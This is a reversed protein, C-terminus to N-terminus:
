VEPHSDDTEPQKARKHSQLFAVLQKRRWILVAIAGLLLVAGAVLLTNRLAHGGEPSFIIHPEYGDDEPINKTARERFFLQYLWEITEDTTMEAFQDGIGASFQQFTAPMDDGEMMGSLLDANDPNRVLDVAWRLLTILVATQDPKVYDIKVSKGGTVRKSEHTVLTGMGAFQTLDLTSFDLQAPVDKFFGSLLDTMDLSGLASFDVGLKELNYGFQRLTETLPYLLNNVCQTLEGNVLRYALNPLIATITYIPQEILRDVLSLIPNLLDTLIADSGKGKCYEVYTKIADDPCSLAELLPIVATNYGNSGPLRMVGFMPVTDNALLGQLLPRLPRLMATLARQFSARNGSTVGWAVGPLKEWSNFRSLTGKAAGFGAPLVSALAAPSAPLGLAAAAIKMEDDSFVGYLLKAIATVTASSYITKGLTTKLDGGAFEATFEGITEDIGSLVRKFEKKGLNKTYEVSVPTFPYRSWQYLLPMTETNTLLHLVIFCLEGPSRSLLPDTLAAPDIKGSAPLMDNLKARNLKVTEFMWRLVEVLCAGSNGKCSALADLNVSALLFGSKSMMDNLSGTVNEAFSKTLSAPNQLFMMVQLMRSGTLPNPLAGISPSLPSLLVDVSHELGGDRIYIALGPLTATLKTMPAASVADALSLLSLAIQYLMMTRNRDAQTRFAADSPISTCGLAQLMPVLGDRYGNEGRLTLLGARYEGECLLTYLLDNFPIAMASVAAAFGSKSTVGWSAGSLDLSKWSSAAAVRQWVAPYAQLGQAVHAPSADIGLGSLLAGQEEAATYLGTLIGSLTEDSFLLGYLYSSLSQGTLAPVANEVLTDARPVSQAAMEATVGEPYYVAGATTLPLCLLLLALLASCLRNVNRKLKM